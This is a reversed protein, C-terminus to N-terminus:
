DVDTVMQYGDEVLEAVLSWAVDRDLRVGIWGKKGVYPPVFFNEGDDSVLIDQAGPPAHCWMAIRGDGHHNDMFMVFMRDNARFTPAGWAIKETTNPLAFCIKRLRKLCDNSSPKERRAAM